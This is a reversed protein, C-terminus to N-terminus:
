SGRNDYFHFFLLARRVYIANGNDMALSLDSCFAIALNPEIIIRCWVHLYKLIFKVM